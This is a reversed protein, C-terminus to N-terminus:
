DVGRSGPPTRGITSGREQRKLAKESKAADSPGIPNQRYGIATGPQQASTATSTREKLAKRLAARDM